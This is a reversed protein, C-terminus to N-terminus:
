EGSFLATVQEVTWNEAAGPARCLYSAIAQDDWAGAMRLGATLHRLYATSPRTHSVASLSWPATFTLVPVGELYGPCVLTEYRGPGLVHRGERLVVGLDLDAGPPEYMEQAAIDGFQQATVLHACAWVTGPAQPDYFARGGTWVSSETAFYLAGPLEVPM